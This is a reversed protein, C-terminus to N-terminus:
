TLIVWTSGTDDRVSVAAGLVHSLMECVVGLGSGVEQNSVGMQMRCGTPQTM